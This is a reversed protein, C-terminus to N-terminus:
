LDWDLEKVIKELQHYKIKQGVEFSKHLENLASKDEILFLKGQNHNKAKFRGTLPNLASISIKEGNYNFSLAEEFSTTQDLERIMAMDRLRNLVKFLKENDLPIKQDNWYYTNEARKLEGLAFKFRFPKHIDILYESTEQIKEDPKLLAFSAVLLALLLSGLFLNLKM